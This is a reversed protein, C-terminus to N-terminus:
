KLAFEPEKVPLLIKFLTGKGHGSEIDVFGKHKQVIETVLALGLGTGHGDEKTTFFPEFIKARIEDPIGTGNDQVQIQVFEAGDKEVAASRVCLVGGKPMADIANNCLNIIIQQIQTANAPVIPLGASLETMLTVFSVKTKAKILTLTNSIVDNINVMERGSNGKRSFSLIQRLFIISRNSEEVISRVAEYKPNDKDIEQLLCQAFGYIVTLPNRIEHAIISGMQGLAALKESQMLRSWLQEKESEAKKHEIIEHELMKNTESLEATRERVKLELRDHAEALEANQKYFKIILQAITGFETNNKQLNDIFSVDGSKLSKSIHSLPRSVVALLYPTLIFFILLELVIASLLQRSSAGNIEKIIASEISINLYKEPKGELGDLPRSFHILGNAIDRNEPVNGEQTDSLVVNSNTLKSIGSLYEDTWLRGVFFYGRPDTKREVDSTPHITAGRIEMLGQPVNCYFHIFRKERFLNEFSATEAPLRGLNDAEINNVSYVLSNGSTYVWAANANFTSLGTDINEEAWKKDGTKLFFVMDDWFTYDMSFNELSSGKLVMIKDFFVIKEKKIEEYLNAAKRQQAHRLYLFGGLSILMLIILLLSLKAQVKLKM